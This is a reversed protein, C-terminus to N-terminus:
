PKSKVNTATKNESHTQACTINFWCVIFSEFKRWFFFGSLLISKWKMKKKEGSQIQIYCIISCIHLPDPLFRTIMTMTFIFNTLSHRRNRSNHSKSNKKVLETFAMGYCQSHEKSHRHRHHRSIKIASNLRHEGNMWKAIMLPKCRTLTSKNLTGVFTFPEDGYKTEMRSLVCAPLDLSHTLWNSACM